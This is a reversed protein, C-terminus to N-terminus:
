FFFFAQLPGLALLLPLLLLLLLLLLQLREALPVRERGGADGCAM